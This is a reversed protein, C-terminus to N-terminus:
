RTPTYLNDDAAATIRQGRGYWDGPGPAGAPLREPRAYGLQDRFLHMFLAV